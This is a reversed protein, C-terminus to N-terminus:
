DMYRKTVMQTIEGIENFTIIFFLSLDNYHYTLRATHSDIPFWQLKEDPLLNTPFFVSEGLWYLLEGQKYQEDQM